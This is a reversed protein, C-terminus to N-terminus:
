ITQTGDGQAKQQQQQEYRFHGYDMLVCRPPQEAPGIELLDLSLTQALRCADSFMYVGLDSGDETVVRVEPARIQGNVRPTTNAM